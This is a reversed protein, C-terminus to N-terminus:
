FAVFSLFKKEEELSSLLKRASLQQTRETVPHRDLRQPGFGGLM